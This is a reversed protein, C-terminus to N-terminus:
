VGLKSYIRTKYADFMLSLIKPIAFTVPELRVCEDFLTDVFYRSIEQAVAYPALAKNLDYARSLDESKLANECEKKLNKIKGRDMSLPFLRHFLLNELERKNEPLVEIGDLLVQEKAVGLKLEVSPRLSNAFLVTDGRFDTDEALDDEDMCKEIKKRLAPTHKSLEEEIVAYERFVGGGLTIDLSLSGGMETRGRSEELPHSDSLHDMLLYAIQDPAGAKSCTETIKMKIYEQVAESLTPSHALEGGSSSSVSSQSRSRDPSRSEWRELSEKVVALRESNVDCWSLEDRLIVNFEKCVDKRVIDQPSIGKALSRALVLLYKLNLSRITVERLMKEIETPSMVKAARLFINAKLHDDRNIADRALNTIREKGVLVYKGQEDDLWLYKGCLFAIFQALDREELDYKEKLRYQTNM